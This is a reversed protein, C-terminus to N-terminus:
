LILRLYIKSRMSEKNKKKIRRKIKRKKDKKVREMKKKVRGMKKKAREMKKNKIKRKIRWVGIFIEERSKSLLKVIM